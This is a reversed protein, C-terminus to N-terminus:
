GKRKGLGDSPSQDQRQQGGELALNPRDGAVGESVDEM